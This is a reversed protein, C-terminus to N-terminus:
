RVSVISDVFSLNRPGIDKQMTAVGDIMEVTSLTENLEITEEAIKRMSMFNNQGAIMGCRDIRVSRVQCSFYQVVGDIQLVFEDFDFADFDVRTRPM